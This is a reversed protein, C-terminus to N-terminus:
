SGIEILRNVTKKRDIKGSEKRDFSDTWYFKRPVEFAPLSEHLVEEVKSEYPSNLGVFVLKEGLADDPQKWLIFRVLLNQKELIRDIAKRIDHIHLKVGGSNVVEDKRSLYRIIRGDVEGLDKTKVKYDLNNFSFRMCGSKKIKVKVDELLKFTNPPMSRMDRLAVHSATETMGYSHFVNVDSDHIFKNIDRELVQSLAAGGILVTRFKKLKEISVPDALIKSMQYPVLSIFTFDHSTTHSVLPNAVPDQITVRWNFIISRMVLMLGGIKTTPICVLVKEDDSLGLAKKSSEASWEVLKKPLSISKPEGTSGSTDLSITDEDRWEEITKQLKLPLDKPVHDIEIKGIFRIM